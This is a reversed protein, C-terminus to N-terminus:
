GGQVTKPIFREVFKFQKNAPDSELVVVDKKPIGEQGAYTIKGTPCPVDTLEAFADRIKTPETSGANKVASDVLCAADGGLAVMVTGPKEGTKKEFGENFKALGQGAEDDSPFGFSFVFLNKAADGAGYTESGEQGDGGIVPGDYGASRLNKLFTVSAPLFMSTFVVDPKANAIQTAQTTYRPQDLKFEATGIVQGGQDKFTDAAATMM